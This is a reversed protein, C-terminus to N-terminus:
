LGVMGYSRCCRLVEPPGYTCSSSSSLGLEKQKQGHLSRFLSLRWAQAIFLMLKKFVLAAGDNVVVKGRKSRVKVSTKAISEFDSFIHKQEVLSRV